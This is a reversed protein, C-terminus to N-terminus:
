RQRKVGIVIRALHNAQAAPIMQKGALMREENARLGVSTPRAKVVLANDVDYFSCTIQFRTPVALLNTLKAQWVLTVTDEIIPRNPDAGSTVVKWSIDRLEAGNFVFLGGCVASYPTKTVIRDPPTIRTIALWHPGKRAYAMRAQIGNCTFTNTVKAEDGPPLNDLENLGKILAATLEKNDKTDWGDCRGALQTPLAGTAPAGKDGGPVPLTYFLVLAIVNDDDNVKLIIQADANARNCEYKRLRMGGPAKTEDILKAGFDGLLPTFDEVDALPRPAAPSPDAQRPTIEADHAPDPAYVRRTRQAAAKDAARDAAKAADLRARYDSLGWGLAWAIAIAFLGGVILSIKYEKCFDEFSYAGMQFRTLVPPDDDAPDPAPSAPPATARPRRPPASQPKPLPPLPATPAPEPIAPDVHRPPMGSLPPLKPLPLLQSVTPMEVVTPPTDEVSDPEPVLAPTGCHPCPKMQGALSDPLDIPRRCSPCTLHIM